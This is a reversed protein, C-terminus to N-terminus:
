FVPVAPMVARVAGSVGQIPGTGFGGGPLTLAVVTARDVAYYTAAPGSTVVFWRVGSVDLLESSATLEPPRVLGCRLVVPDGDGWAVAGVPAPAAVARRHLPHSGNALVSPLSRVLAGCEASGAAPAAVPVLLVPGSDVVVPAPSPGAVSRGLVLGAVAVAVVLVLALGLAIILPPSLRSPLITRM